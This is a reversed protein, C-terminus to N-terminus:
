AESGPSILRALERAQDPTFAVAQELQRLLEARLAPDAPILAQWRDRQDLLERGDLARSGRSRTRLERLQEALADDTGPVPAQSPGDLCALLRQLLLRARRQRALGGSLIEERSIAGDGM